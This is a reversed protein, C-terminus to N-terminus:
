DDLLLQLIPAMNSRRKGEYFFDYLATIKLSSYSEGESTQNWDLRYNKFATGLGMDVVIHGDNWYGRGVFGHDVQMSTGGLAAPRGSDIANKYTYWSTTRYTNVDYYIVSFNNYGHDSAYKMFGAVILEATEGWNMDNNVEAIFSVYSPINSTDDPWLTQWDTTTILNTFGIRDWYSFVIAGAVAACSGYLTEPQSWYRLDTIYAALFNLSQSPTFYYCIDPNGFYADTSPVSPDYVYGSEITFQNNLNLSHDAVTQGTAGYLTYSIKGTDADYYSTIVEQGQYDVAYGNNINNICYYGDNLGTTNNKHYIIEGISYFSTTAYIYGAFYDGSGDLYYYKFDYRSVNTTTDASESAGIIFYLLLILAFIIRKM